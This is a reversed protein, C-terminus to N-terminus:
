LPPSCKVYQSHKWKGQQTSFIRLCIKCQKKDLFGDCKEEHRQLNHRSSLIRNCKLCEFERNLVVFTNIKEGSDNAGNDSKGSVDEKLEMKLENIRSLLQKNQEVVNSYDDELRKYKHSLDSFENYYKSISTEKNCTFNRLSCITDIMTDLDGEFYENGYLPVNVFKYHFVEILKKEVVNVDFCYIHFFLISGNPYSQFRKLNDQTTKGIKYISENCKVSERTQLLYIFGFM